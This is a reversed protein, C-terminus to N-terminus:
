PESIVYLDNINIKLRLHNICNCILYFNISIIAILYQYKQVGWSNWGKEIDRLIQITYLNNSWILETQLIYDDSYTGLVTSM